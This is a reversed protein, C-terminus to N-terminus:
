NTWITEEWNIGFEKCVCDTGKSTVKMICVREPNYHTFAPDIGKIEFEQYMKEFDVAMINFDPDDEDELYYEKWLKNAAIIQEVIHNYAAMVEKKSHLSLINSGEYDRYALLYGTM